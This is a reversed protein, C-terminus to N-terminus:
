SLLISLLDGPAFARTSKVTASLLGRPESEFQLDFESGALLRRFFTQLETRTFDQSAADNPVLLRDNFFLGLERGNFKLKGELRPDSELREFAKLTARTAQALRDQNSGVLAAKRNYRVGLKRGTNDVSYNAEHGILVVGPGGDVHRYDAVDLLVEDCARDQIWSHFVSIVPELDFEGADEALLKVNIHQLEM